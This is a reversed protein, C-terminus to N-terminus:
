AIQVIRFSCGLGGIGNTGANTHARIIDGQNFNTTTSCVVQVGSTSLQRVQFVVQNSIPMASVNSTLQISDVSIGIEPGGAGAPDLSLEVFFVGPSNITFSDGTVASVAYTIATGINKAISTFRLVSTAASGNGPSGYVLVENNLVLARRSPVGFCGQGNQM